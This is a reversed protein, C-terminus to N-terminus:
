EGSLLYQFGSKELAEIAERRSRHNPKPDPHLRFQEIYQQYDRPLGHQMAGALVLARYWNFPALGDSFKLGFYTVAQLPESSSHSRVDVISRQYDFGEGEARDLAPLDKQEISFLVGYLLADAKKIPAAKGSGDPCPKSFAFSHGSLEGTSHPEATPCRRRLRETLM